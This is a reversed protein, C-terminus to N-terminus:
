APRGHNEHFGFRQEAAKRAAVADDFNIYSGLKIVGRNVGIQARWRGEQKDWCVGVVGSTNRSDLAKNKVNEAHSVERLNCWRNDARDGNIHDILNAPWYGTQFAWAIQHARITKGFIRIEPYGKTDVRGAPKGADRNNFINMGRATAFHERPRKKWILQGTEPNYDLAERLVSISLNEIM